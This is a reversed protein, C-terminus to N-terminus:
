RFREGVRSACGVSYAERNLNFFQSVGTMTFADPGSLTITQTAVQWGAQFGPSGPPTGPATDFNIMTVVRGAYTQGGDHRWVGHSESQQGLAFAPINRSESVTGDQHFTILARTPPGIPANTVCNRNQTTVGWVGTLTMGQGWATGTLALVLGIALVVPARSAIKERSSGMVRNM